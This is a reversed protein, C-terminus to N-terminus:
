GDNFHVGNISTSTFRQDYGRLSYRMPSFNYSATRLFVDSSANSLSGITQNSGDEDNIQSEDVYFSESDDISASKMQITGIERIVGQNAILSIEVDDYGSSIFDLIATDIGDKKIIFEGKNNSTSYVNHDRLIIHVGPIPMGTAGDIINGSFGTQGFVSASAILMLFLCLKQKM